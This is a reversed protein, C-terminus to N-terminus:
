GPAFCSRRGARVPTATCLLPIGAARFADIEALVDTLVTALGPNANEQDILFFERRYRRDHFRDEVRCLSLIAADIPARLAGLINAAFIGPRIETPGRAPVDQALAPSARPSSTERKSFSRRSARSRSRTESPNTAPRVNLVAVLSACLPNSTLLNGAVSSGDRPRGSAV